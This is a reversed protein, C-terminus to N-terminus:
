DTALQNATSLDAIFSFSDNIFKDIKPNHSSYIISFVESKISLDEKLCVYRARNTSLDVCGKTAQVSRFTNSRVSSSEM